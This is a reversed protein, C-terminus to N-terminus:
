LIYYYYPNKYHNTMSIDIQIAMKYNKTKNKGYVLKM